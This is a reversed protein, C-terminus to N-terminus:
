VWYVLALHHKITRLITKSLGKALPAIVKTDTVPGTYRRISAKRACTQVTVDVHSRIASGPQRNILAGTLLATHETGIGAGSPFLKNDAPIIVYVAARREGGYCLGM